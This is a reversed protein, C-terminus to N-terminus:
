YNVKAKKKAERKYYRYAPDVLRYFLRFLEEDSILARIVREDHKFTTKDEVKPYEILGSYGVRWGKNNVELILTTKKIKAM